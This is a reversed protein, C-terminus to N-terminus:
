VSRQRWRRPKQPRLASADVIVMAARIPDHALTNGHFIVAHHYAGRPSKGSAIWYGPPNDTIQGQSGKGSHAECWLGRTSLWDQLDVWWEPGPKEMFNPVDSRPLDLLCAVCTAFCDGHVPDIRQQDQEM